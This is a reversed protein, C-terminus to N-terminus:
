PPGRSGCPGRWQAAQTGEHRTQARSWSCALRSSALRFGHDDPAVTDATESKDSLGTRRSLPGQVLTVVLCHPANPSEHFSGVVVLTSSSDLPGVSSQWPARGEWSSPSSRLNMSLRGGGSQERSDWRRAAEADGSPFGLPTGM